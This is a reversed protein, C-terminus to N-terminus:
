PCSLVSSSKGLDWLSRVSQRLVAPAPLQLGILVADTEATHLLIAAPRYGAVLLTVSMVSCLYPPSLGGAYWCVAAPSCACTLFDEGRIRTLVYFVQSM